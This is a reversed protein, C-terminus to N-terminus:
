SAFLMTPFLVASVGTSAAKMGGFVGRCIGAASGGRRDCLAESMARGAAPASLFRVADAVAPIRAGGSFTAPRVVAGDEAVRGVVAGRGVGAFTAVVGAVFRGTSWRAAAGFGAAPGVCEAISRTDPVIRFVLISWRSGSTTQPGFRTPAVGAGAGAGLRATVGARGADTAAAFDLTDDVRGELSGTRFAVGVLADDAAVRGRSEALVAVAGEGAVRFDTAAGAADDAFFGAGAWSFGESASVTRSHMSSREGCRCFAFASEAMMSTVAFPLLTAPGPDQEVGPADGARLETGRSFSPFTLGGASSAIPVARWRAMSRLTFRGADAEATFRRSADGDATPARTAGFRPTGLRAAVVAATVRTAVFRGTLAGAAFLDVAADVATFRVLETWRLSGGGGGTTGCADEPSATADGATASPGTSAHSPLLM